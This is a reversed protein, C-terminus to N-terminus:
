FFFSMGIWNSRIGLSPEEYVCLILSFFLNVRKFVSAFIVISYVSCLFYLSCFYAALYEGSTWPLFLITPFDPRNDKTKRQTNTRTQSLFFSQTHTPRLVFFIITWSTSKRECVGPLFPSFFIYFFFSLNLIILYLSLFSFSTPQHQGKWM